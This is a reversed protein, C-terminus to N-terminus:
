LLFRMGNTVHNATSMKVLSGNTKFHPTGDHQAGNPHKGQTWFEYKAEVTNEEHQKYPVPYLRVAYQVMNLMQSYIVAIIWM